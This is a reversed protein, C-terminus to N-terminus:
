YTKLSSRILSDKEADGRRLNFQYFSEEWGGYTVNPLIIFKNGFENASISVNGARERENKKDFLASFDALNDGLLLVIDHTAALALRRPEKSSVDSRMVLHKDDAFPFGFHRLNAMTGAREKEERNTIYYIEFGRAAAYSFFSLSGQLTDAKGMATWEAWSAAEYDKGMLSQHVAYPSNDLFTEDIDTVIAMPRLTQRKSLEDVRLRAINFAQQCLARYEASRQQFFSAWLKGDAVLSSPTTVRGTSHHGAGCAAIFVTALLLLTRM